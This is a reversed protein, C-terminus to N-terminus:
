QPLQVIKQALMIIIQQIFGNVKPSQHLNERPISKSCNQHVGAVIVGVELVNPNNNLKIAKSNPDSDFIDM